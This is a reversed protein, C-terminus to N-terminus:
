QGYIDRLAADVKEEPIGFFEFVRSLNSVQLKANSNAKLYAESTIELLSKAHENWQVLEAPSINKLLSTLMAFAALIAVRCKQLQIKSPDSDPLPPVLSCILFQYEDLNKAISAAQGISPAWKRASRVDISVAEFIGRIRKINLEPVTIGDGVLLKGCGSGALLWSIIASLPAV